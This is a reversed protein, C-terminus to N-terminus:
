ISIPDEESHGSNKQPPSIKRKEPDPNSRFFIATHGVMGILHAGVADKLEEAMRQKDSKVKCEIFKIKVLEHRDLAQALEQAVMPTVGRQGILLVPKLGHALARLYKRQYGKLPQDAIPPLISGDESNTQSSISM